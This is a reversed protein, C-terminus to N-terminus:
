RHVILKRRSTGQASEVEIIYVGNAFDAVSLQRIKTTSILLRGNVDFVRLNFMAEDSGFRVNVRDNAPNPYIKFLEINSESYLSRVLSFNPRGDLDEQELRYYNWGASPAEDLFLYEVDVLSASVFGINEWSMGDKSSQVHFGLNNRESDVVWSLLNNKGNKEAIFYRYTVPLPSCAAEVEMRNSCGAANGSITAMSGATFLYDCVIIEECLGLTSNDEIILNIISTSEINNLGSIDTLKPNGSIELTAGGIQTIGTMGDLNLLEDNEQILLQGNVELSANIGNLSTLGANNDIRLFSSVSTLGVIGTLDTLTNNRSIRTSQETTTINHLGNLSPLDSNDFVLLRGEVLTLDSLPTLDTIDGPSSENITLNGSITSCGAPFTNIQAQSSLTVNGTPCQAVLSSNVLLATITFYFYPLFIKM